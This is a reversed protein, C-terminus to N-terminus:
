TLVELLVGLLVPFEDVEVEEVCSAVLASEVFSEEFIL